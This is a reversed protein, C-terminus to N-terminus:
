YSSCVTLLPPYVLNFFLVLFFTSVFLSIYIGASCCFVIVLSVDSVFQGLCRQM